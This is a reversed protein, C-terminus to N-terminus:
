CRYSMCHQKFVAMVGWGRLKPNRHKLFAPPLKAESLAPLCLASKDPFAGDPLYISSTSVVKKTKFFFFLAADSLISFATQLSSKLFLKFAKKHRGLATYMRICILISTHPPWFVKKVVVTKM